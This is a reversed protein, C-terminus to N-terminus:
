KSLQLKQNACSMLCQLSCSLCSIRDSVAEFKSAQQRPLSCLNYSFSAIKSPCIKFCLSSYLYISFHFSVKGQRKKSKTMGHDLPYVCSQLQLNNIMLFLTANLACFYFLTSLSISHEKEKFFSSHHRLFFQMVFFSQEAIYANFIGRCVKLLFCIGRRNTELRSPSSQYFYFTQADFCAFHHITKWWTGQTCQM